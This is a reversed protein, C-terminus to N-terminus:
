VRQLYCWTVSQLYCWTVSATPLVMDWETPLVMDCESYTVGHGVRQLYCWTGSQLYCWTVSATPLVM